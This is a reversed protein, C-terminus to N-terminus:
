FINFIVVLFKIIIFIFNTDLITINSKLLGILNIIKDYFNINVPQSKFFIKDFKAM